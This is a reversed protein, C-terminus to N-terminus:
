FRDPSFPALDIEPTEGSALQAILEGSIPGQSIGSMGHGTALILGSTGAPRGLIPLDDPTLPRLGRWIEVTRTRPLGPLYRRVTDALADVRRRNMRMDLGALELTGGFRLRSGMPTVFVMGEALALPFDPHEEPREVTISYGKAAEVPIRLGLGRTLEPTWAGAALVVEGASFDGRTTRVRVPGRRSWEVGLVETHTEIAAGRRAVEAALGRVFDGPAIHADAPFELGGALEPSLGPIAERLAEAGLWNASGGEAVLLDVDRRADRMAEATQFILTLGRRTFGFDCDLTEALEGFRELSALSLARRLRFSERQANANCARRFDWLWRLLALSARPQIWFPSAPDLLWPLSERIVGPGPLPASESPHIWGGNGHSAGSCIEGRELLTTRVGREVLSHAICVGVVGGGVVLVDPRESM